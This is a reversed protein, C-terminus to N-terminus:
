TSGMLVAVFVGPLAILTPLPALQVTVVGHRDPGARPGDDQSQSPREDTRVIAAANVAKRTRV